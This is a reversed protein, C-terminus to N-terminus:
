PAKRKWSEALPHEATHEACSVAYAALRGRIEAQSKKGLNRIGDIEEPTHSLLAEVTQIGARRLCNYSRLSLDLEEIRLQAEGPYIVETVRRRLKKVEEALRLFIQDRSIREGRSSLSRVRSQTEENLISCLMKRDEERPLFVGCCALAADNWEMM